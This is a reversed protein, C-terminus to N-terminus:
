SRPQDAVPAESHGREAVAGHSTRDARTSAMVACAEARTTVFQNKYFPSVAMADATRRACAERETVVFQNKYFPSVDEADRALARSASLSLLTTLLIRYRM